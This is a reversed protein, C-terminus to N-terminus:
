RTKSERQFKDRQEQYYKRAPVIEIARRITEIALEHQGDVHYLEALTDYYGATGPRLEVARKSLEIANSLNRGSCACAWAYNNLYMASEPYSELITYFDQSVNDFIEDILEDSGIKKFVPFSDEVFGSDAPLFTSLKKFWYRAKEVDENELAGEILRRHDNESGELYPSEIYQLRLLQMRVMKQHSSLVGKSDDYSMRWMYYCNSSPTDEELADHLRYVDFPLSQWDTGFYGDYYDYADYPDFNLAFLLRMRRAKLPEKAKTYADWAQAFYIEYEESIAQAEYRRAARLFEGKDMLAKIQQTEGSNAANSFLKAEDVGWIMFLQRAAEANSSFDVDAVEGWLDSPAEGIMMPSRVLAAVKRLRDYPEEIKKALQQYLFDAPLHQQGVPNLLHSASFNENRRLELQMIEWASDRAGMNQLATVVQSGIGDHHERFDFYQQRFYLEAEESLGLTAFLACVERWHLLEATLKEQYNNAQEPYREIQRILSRVRRSRTKFYKARGEFTQFGFLEFLKAYRRHETLLQFAQAGKKLPQFKLSREFELVYRLFRAHTTNNMPADFGQKKQKQREEELDSEIKGIAKEFLEEDGSYFSILALPYGTAAYALGDFPEEPEEDDDNKEADPDPQPILEVLKKWNGSEMLITHYLRKRRGKNHLKKTLELAEDWRGLFRMLGVLTRLNPQKPQKAQEVLQNKKLDAKKKAQEADFKEAAEIEVAAEKELQKIAQDLQGDVWLTYYYVTKHTKATLPDRIWEMYQEDDGTQLALAADSLAISCSDRLADQNVKSPVLNILKRATDQRELHCLKQIARTQVSLERELFGQACQVVEADDEPSLGIQIFTALDSARKKAEPSFNGDVAPQLIELVPPGFEWLM